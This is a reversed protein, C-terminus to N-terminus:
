SQGCRCQHRLRGLGALPLDRGFRRAQQLVPPVVLEAAHAGEEALDFGGFGRDPQGLHCRLGLVALRKQVVQGAGVLVGVGLQHAQGQLQGGARALGGHHGHQDGPLGDVGHAARCCALERAAEQDTAGPRVM